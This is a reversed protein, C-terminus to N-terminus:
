NQFQRHHQLGVARLMNTVTRQGPTLVAGILLMHVHQFVRRSFLPAFTSLLKIIPPPLTLMTSREQRIQDDGYRVSSSRKNLHIFDLKTNRLTRAYAPGPVWELNGSRTWLNEM